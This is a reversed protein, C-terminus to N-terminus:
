FVAEVIKRINDSKGMTYFHLVPVGAKVLERSQKIGWEIGVQRVQQNDRCKLVEVVLEEPLDIAFTKPM